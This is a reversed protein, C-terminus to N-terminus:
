GLMSAIVIMATGITLDLGLLVAATAAGVRLSLRIGYWELWLAWGVTVLETVQVVAAPAGFAGPIGGAAVLLNEIVSCYSWVAVFRPWEAKKGIRAAVHESLWVFLLWGIAFLLLYRGLSVPANAPVKSQAWELLKIGSILPLCLPLAWFSARAAPMGPDILEVGERRGSALLWAGRMGTAVMSM